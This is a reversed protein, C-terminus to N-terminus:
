KWNLMVIYFHPHYEHFGFLSGWIMRDESTSAMAFKNIAEFFNKVPCLFWSFLKWFNAPISSLIQDCVTLNTQNKFITNIIKCKYKNPAKKNEENLSFKVNKRKYAEVAWLFSSRLVNKLISNTIILNIFSLFKPSNVSEFLLYTVNSM